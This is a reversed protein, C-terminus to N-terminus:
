WSVCCSVSWIDFSSSSSAFIDALYILQFRPNVLTKFTPFRRSVPIVDRKNKNKKSKPLRPFEDGYNLGLDTGQNRVPVRSNQGYSIGHVPNQANTNSIKKKNFFKLYKPPKIKRKKKQTRKESNRPDQRDIGMPRNYYVGNELFLYTTLPM